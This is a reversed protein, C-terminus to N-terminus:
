NEGDLPNQHHLLQMELQKIAKSHTQDMQAIKTSHHHQLALIYKILDLIIEYLFFCAYKTIRKRGDKSTSQLNELSVQNPNDHDNDDTNLKSFDFETSLLYSDGNYHSNDSPTSPCTLPTGTKSKPRPSFHNLM